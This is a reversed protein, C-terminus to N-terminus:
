IAELLASSFDFDHQVICTSLGVTGTDRTILKLFAFRAFAAHLMGGFDPDRGESSCGERIGRAPTSLVREDGQASLVGICARQSFYPFRM